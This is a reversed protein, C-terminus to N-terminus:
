ILLLYIIYFFKRNLNDTKKINVNASIPNLMKLSDKEKYEKGQSDELPVKKVESDKAVSSRDIYDADSDCDNENGNNYDCDEDSNNKSIIRYNGEKGCKSNEAKGKWVFNKDEEIIPQIWNLRLLGSELDKSQLKSQSVAMDSITKKSSVSCTQFCDGTSKNNKISTTTIETSKKSKFSTAFNFKKENKWNGKNLFNKFNSPYNIGQPLKTTKSKPYIKLTCDKDLLTTCTFEKNNNNENSFNSTMTSAKSNSGIMGLLDDYNELFNKLNSTLPAADEAKEKTKKNNNNNSGITNQNAFNSFNSSSKNKNNNINNNNNFKNNLNLNLNAYLGGYSNSEKNDTKYSSTKLIFDLQENVLNIANASIQKIINTSKNSSEYNLKNDSIIFDGNNNSIISKNYHNDDEINTELLFQEHQKVPMINSITDISGSKMHEHMYTEKKLPSPTFSVFSKIPTKRISEIGKNSNLDLRLKVQDQNTMKGNM